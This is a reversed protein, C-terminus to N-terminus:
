YGCTQYLSIYSHSIWFHDVRLKSSTV